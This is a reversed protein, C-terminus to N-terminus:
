SRPGDCYRMNSTNYISVIECEKNKNEVSWLKKVQDFNLDDLMHQFQVTWYTACVSDPWSLGYLRIDYKTMLFITVSPLSFASRSVGTPKEM